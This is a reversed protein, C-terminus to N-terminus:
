PSPPLGIIYGGGTISGNPNIVALGANGPAVEYPPDESPLSGFQLYAINISSTAIIEIGAGKLKSMADLFIDFPNPPNMPDQPVPANFFITANNVEQVNANTFEDAYGNAKWYNYFDNVTGRSNVFCIQSQIQPITVNNTAVNFYSACMQLYVGTPVASPLTGDPNGADNLNLVNTLSRAVEYYSQKVDAFVQLLACFNSANKYVQPLQNLAYTYFDIAPMQTVAGEAFTQPV